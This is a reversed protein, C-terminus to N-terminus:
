MVRVHQPDKKSWYYFRGEDAIWLNHERGNKDIETYKVWNRM